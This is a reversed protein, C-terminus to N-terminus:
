LFFDRRLHAKGEILEALDQLNEEFFASEDPKVGPEDIVAVCEVPGSGQESIKKLPAALDPNRVDFIDQAYGPFESAGNEFIQILYLQGASPAIDM